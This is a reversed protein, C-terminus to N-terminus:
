WHKSVSLSAFRGVASYNTSDYPPFNISTTTHLPPARNFLNQVALVFEWGSWAGNGEGTEFRLNTDVTTFSATNEAVGSALNNRVGDTYNVFASAMWASWSWVAGVRSNLKAPHFIMGALDIADTLANAQRSSDLWSVSGRVALQGTAVDFRYSGSLDVGNIKERVVNTYQNHLVAVVKGADYEVGSLNYFMARGIIAAQQAPTPAYQVFQSYIPNGLGQTYDPVPLVVRDTYDIDFWTLEMELGPLAEPHFAASATWTRAREPGLNPNSGYPMLVTEDEAYGTAGVDRADLLYAFQSGYRETLTPAKFSRGWSAKLTFDPGPGYILGLKPTSVNGFSSYDEARMAGTLTLRQKGAGSLTQDVLPLNLEAYAFRASEKGDFMAQGASQFLLANSRYGAGIAARAEGANGLEFVPGEAGVEYSRSDQCYCGWSSFTQLGTVTSVSSQRFDYGSDGWTGGLSLTWDGPLWIQVSPAVLTNSSESSFRSLSTARASFQGQERETRFADLSFEVREGVAQHASLLGSRLDSGPYIVTPRIMHQTYRRRASDIPDVSAYKYTAIVGGTAWTTGATATYERTNLGGSTAAGYRTGVTVGDFSRKLIVNGVGAVADSGYIASAGDTVIEIRQVAQIPIASIDIAQPSAADYSMRRGNLLTLTADPGLGRLNLGSGGTINQNVPSTPNSTIGPNQGGNFNQPVTRVLDGVDAFGEEEIQVQGITIVPSPTSGARIRSGTVSMAQLETVKTESQVQTPMPAAPRSAETAPTRSARIVITTDNVLGWDLGSGNLLRDLAQRWALQGNVAAARKGRVLDGSYVIQLGAQNALQDLADGLDGAQIAYQRPAEGPQAYGPAMVGWGALATLLAACLYKRTLAGAHISAMGNQNM